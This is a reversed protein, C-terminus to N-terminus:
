QLSVMQCKIPFPGETFSLIAITHWFKGLVTSSVCRSRTGLAGLERLTCVDFHHSIMSASDEFGEWKRDHQQLTNSHSSEVPLIELIKVEMIKVEMIKIDMIKIDM